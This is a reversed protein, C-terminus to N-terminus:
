VILLSWLFLLLIISVENKAAVNSTPPHIAKHGTKDAGMSPVEMVQQITDPHPGSGTQAYHLFLLGKGSVAPLQVGTTWGM